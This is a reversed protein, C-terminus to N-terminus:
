VSHSDSGSGSFGVARCNTFDAVPRSRNRRQRPRARIAPRAIAAPPKAARPMQARPCASRASVPSCCACVSASFANTFSRCAVAARASASVCRSAASAACFSASCFWCVASCCVCSASALALVARSCVSSAILVSVETIKSIWPPSFFTGPAPGTRRRTSFVANVRNCSIECSNPSSFATSRLVIAANTSMASTKRRTPWPSTPGSWAGAAPVSSAARSRNRLAFAM